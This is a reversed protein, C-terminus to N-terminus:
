ISRIKLLNFVLLLWSLILLLGGLPTMLAISTFDFGSLDNTALGYISGSFFVVGFLLFYFILNATKKSVFGFGGLILAFLAHYMQFRIGTEYTELEESTILPELGHAGYAGLIVGILGLIAGLILLNKHYIIKPVSM